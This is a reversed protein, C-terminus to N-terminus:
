APRAKLGLQCMLASFGWHLPAGALLVLAWTLAPTPVAVSMAALMGIGSDVRDVVFQVVAGAPSRAGEGPAIGLQRKVFSNPLEGAMFGLAAWAGLAAYQTPSLAWLLHARADGALVSLAAFAGATSPVIVVLGRLTKHDGLLRRGRVTLGGDLPAAFARSRPSSFWATQAIGAIVFAAILFASCALPDPNV